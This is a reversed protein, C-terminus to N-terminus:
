LAIALGITGQDMPKKTATWETWETCKTVARHGHVTSMPKRPM